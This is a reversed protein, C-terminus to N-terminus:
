WQSECLGVLRVRRSGGARRRRESHYKSIATNAAVFYPQDIGHSIIRSGGICAGVRWGPVVWLGHKDTTYVAGDSVPRGGAWICWRDSSRSTGVTTVGAIGGANGTAPDSMLYMVARWDDHKAGKARRTVDGPFSWRASSTNHVLGAM